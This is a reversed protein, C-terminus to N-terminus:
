TCALEDFFPLFEGFVSDQWWIQAIGIFSAESIEQLVYAFVAKVKDCM